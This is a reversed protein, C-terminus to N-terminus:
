YLLLGLKQVSKAYDKLLSRRIILLALSFIRYGPVMM